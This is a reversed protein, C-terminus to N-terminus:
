AGGTTSSAGGLMTRLRKKMWGTFMDVTGGSAETAAATRAERRERRMAKRGHPGGFGKGYMDSPGYMGGFGKGSLGGFGKGHIGGFGKGGFGKKGLLKKQKKRGMPVDVPAAATAAAGAAFGGAIATAAAAGGSVDASLGASTAAAAAYAAADAAEVLQRSNAPGGGPGDVRKYISWGASNPIFQSEPKCGVLECAPRM